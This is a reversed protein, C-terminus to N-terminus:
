DAAAVRGASEGDPAGPVEPTKWPSPPAVELNEPEGRDKRPKAFPKPKIITMRPKPLAAKAGNSRDSGYFVRQENVARMRMALNHARVLSHDEPLGRGDPRLNTYDKEPDLYVTTHNVRVEILHPHVPTESIARSVTADPVLVPRKIVSVPAGSNSRDIPLVLEAPEAKVESVAAGIVAAAACAAILKFRDM